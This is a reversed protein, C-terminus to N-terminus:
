RKETALKVILRAVAANTFQDSLLAAKTWHIFRSKLIREGSAKQQADLTANPTLLGERFVYGDGDQVLASENFQAGFYRMGEGRSPTEFFASNCNGPEGPLAFVDCRTPDLREETFVEEALERRAADFPNETASDLFGRPCNWVEGGMNHRKELVVGVYPQGKVMACPLIVTGGGGVEHFAWGDYGGQTMGYRLVGFRPNYIEVETLNELVEPRFATKGEGDRFARTVTVKWGRKDLKEPPIPLILSVPKVIDNSM